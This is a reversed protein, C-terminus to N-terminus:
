DIVLEIRRNQSRGEETSNDAVPETQGKSNVNINEPLV